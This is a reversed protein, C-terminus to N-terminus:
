ILLADCAISYRRAIIILDINSQIELHIAAIDVANHCHHDGIEWSLCTM